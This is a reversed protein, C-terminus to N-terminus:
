SYKNINARAHHHKIICNECNKTEGNRKKKFLHALSHHSPPRAVPCLTRAQRTYLTVVGRMLLAALRLAQSVHVFPARETLWFVLVFYPLHYPSYQPLRSVNM